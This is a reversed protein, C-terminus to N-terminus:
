QKINLNNGEKGLFSVAAMTKMHAAGDRPPFRLHKGPSLVLQSLHSNGTTTCNRSSLEPVPSFRNVNGLDHSGGMNKARKKLGSFM